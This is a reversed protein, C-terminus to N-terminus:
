IDIVSTIQHILGIEISYDNIKQYLAPYLQQRAKPTFFRLWETFGSLFYYLEVCEEIQFYYNIINLKNLFNLENYGYQPLAADHQLCNKCENVLQLYHALEDTNSIFAQGHLEKKGLSGSCLNELERKIFPFDLKNLANDPYINM